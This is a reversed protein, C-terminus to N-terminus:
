DSEIGAVSIAAAPRHINRLAESINLSCDGIREIQRLMDIYLIEARASAGKRLRKEARKKLADRSSNIKDEIEYAKDLESQSLLHDLHKRNFELFIRVQEAYPIIEEMSKTSFKIKKDNRRRVLMILNFCNDAVSELEDVIRIMANVNGASSENLNERICNILFQSIEEQMQDTYEEMEKLKEVAQGLKKKPHSFVKLFIEFMEEIIAAMKYIERRANVINIEPTQQITTSVYKLKYVGSAAGPKEKVM